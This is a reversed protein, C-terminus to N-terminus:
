KLHLIYLFQNDYLIPALDIKDKVKFGYKSATKLISAISPMYLTHVNKRVNKSLDDIIKEEFTGINKKLNFDSMYEFNDFKIFSRTNTKNVKYLPDDNNIMSPNFNNRDVLHIILYGKPGLLKSCNNFFM